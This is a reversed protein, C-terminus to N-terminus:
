PQPTQARGFLERSTLSINATRAVLNRSFTDLQGRQRANAPAKLNTFEAWTLILYHGKFQAEELGTGHALNKTPGHASPLQKIFATAGTAKGAKEAGAVNSLNLVGITAMIKQGTSLYSARLVQTCDAKRLAAQLAKGLVMKACNTGDKQVTRKTVTGGSTYQTPFLETLTLATPDEARTTIHKWPGLSPSPSSSATVATTPSPASTATARGKVFHLYAGAVLGGAILMMVLPMLWIRARSPPKRPKRPKGPKRGRAASRSGRPPASAQPRGPGAPSVPDAVDPPADAMAAEGMAAKGTAADYWGTAEPDLGPMSPWGGASGLTGALGPAGAPGPAGALGPAGAPSPTGAPDLVAAQSPSGPSGSDNSAPEFMGRVAQQPGTSAPQRSSRGLLGAGPDAQSGGAAATWEGTLQDEDLVAWTQTATADASPDSVALLPYGPQATDLSSGDLDAGAGQAPRGAAGAVRLAPTNWPSFQGPPYIPDPAGPAPPYGRV